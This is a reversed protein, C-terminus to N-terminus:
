SSEMAVKAEAVPGSVARSAAVPTSVARSATAGELFARKEAATTKNNSTHLEAGFPPKTLNRIRQEEKKQFLIQQASATGYKGVNQEYYPNKKCDKHHGKKYSPGRECRKCEVKKNAITEGLLTKQKKRESNKYGNRMMSKISGVRLQSAPGMNEKNQDTTSFKNPSTSKFFSHIAQQGKKAADDQSKAATM